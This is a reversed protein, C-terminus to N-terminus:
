NEQKYRLWGVKAWPLEEREGKYVQEVTGSGHEISPTVEHGM